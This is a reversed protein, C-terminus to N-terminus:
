QGGVVPIELVSVSRRPFTVRVKGGAITVPQSRETMWGKRIAVQEEPTGELLHQVGRGDPPTLAALDLEAELDADFARNIVHVFVVKDSRTAVVDLLAV